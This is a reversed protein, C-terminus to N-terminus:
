RVGKWYLRVQESLIEETSLPKSGISKRLLERNIAPTTLGNNLHRRLINTLEPASLAQDRNADHKQWSQFADFNKFCTMAMAASIEYPELRGDMNHEAEKLIAAALADFVLEIGGLEVEDLQQDDNCDFFTLEDLDLQLNGNADISPLSLEIYAPDSIAKRREQNEIRGNKDLDYKALVSKKRQEASESEAKQEKLLRDDWAAISAALSEKPIHWIGPLLRSIILLGAPTYAVTPAYPHRYQISGNQKSKNLDTPPEFKLPIITPLKHNPRFILLLEGSVGGDISTDFPITDPAEICVAWLNTGDYHTARLDVLLEPPIRWEPPPLSATESGTSRLMHPNNQYKLPIPLKLLPRFPPNDGTIGLAWKRELIILGLDERPTVDSKSPLAGVEMWGPASESLEYFKGNIFTCVQGRRTAWLRPGNLSPLEDLLSKVPRRRASSILSFADGLIEFISDATTCFLRDGVKELQGYGEFPMPLDVWVKKSFSYVRLKTGTSFYLHDRYVEFLRGRPRGVLSTFSSGEQVIHKDIVQTGGVPIIESKLTEADLRAVASEGGYQIELWIQDNRYCVSAISRSDTGGAAAPNEPIRWFRSVALPAAVNLPSPPTSKQNVGPTPITGLERSSTRPGMATRGPLKDIASTWRTPPPFSQNASTNSDSASERANAQPGPPAPDPRTKVSTGPPPMQPPALLAELKSLLRKTNDEIQKSAGPSLSNTPMRVQFAKVLPILEMADNTTFTMTMSLLGMKPFDYNTATTLQRKIDDIELRHQMLRRATEEMQRAMTEEEKKRRALETSWAIFQSEFNTWVPKAAPRKLLPQINQVLNDGRPPALLEDRKQWHFELLQRFAEAFTADNAALACRLYLGDVKCPLNTSNCLGEVFAGWVEPVRRRDKWQWGGLMVQDKGGEVARTRVEAFNGLNLMSQYMRVGGEPTEHWLWGFRAKTSRAAAGQTMLNTFGIHTEIARTTELCLERLDSLESLHGDRAEALFYYKELRASASNVLTVGWQFWVANNTSVDGTFQALERQFNQLQRIAVGLKAPAPVEEYGKDNIAQYITHRLLAVEATQRGLAWSSEAAAAADELMGWRLNWQAEEFYRGAEDNANWPSLNGLTLASAIQNCLQNVVETLNTRPGSVDIQIPTARGPRNLRANISVREKAYGDRDVIGDLLYAGKWFSSEDDPHFDKEEVLVDMRERELVFLHDELSLRDILLFNLLKASETAESSALASQLRVLSLPVADQASVSLKPGYRRLTSAVGFTWSNADSIPWSARISHVIVGPKVALLRVSIVSQDRFKSLDFLLLGDAGLLRGLKVYDGNAASLGQERYVRNIETRELLTFEQSQSLEAMLLDAYGAVSAEQAILALRVPPKNTQALLGPALTLITAFALITAKM